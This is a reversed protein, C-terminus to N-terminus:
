IHIKYKEKMSEEFQKRFHEAEEYEGHILCHYASKVKARPRWQIKMCLCREYYQLVQISSLYKFNQVLYMRM